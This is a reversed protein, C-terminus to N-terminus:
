CCSVENQQKGSRELALGFVLIGHPPHMDGQARAGPLSAPGRLSVREATGLPMPTATHM